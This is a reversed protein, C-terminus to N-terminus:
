KATVSSPLPLAFPSDEFDQGVEAWGLANVQSIAFQQVAHSGDVSRLTLTLRRRSGGVASALIRDRHSRRRVYAYLPLECDPSTIKYAQFRESDEFLYNYYQCPAVLCRMEAQQVVGELLEGWSASGLRAYAPWDVM